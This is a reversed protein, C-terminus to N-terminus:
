SGVEVNVAIGLAVALLKMRDCFCRTWEERYMDTRSHRQDGSLVVQNAYSEAILILADRQEEYVKDRIAARRIM